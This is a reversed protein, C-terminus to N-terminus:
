KGICFNSFIEGLLDDTTVKGVIEGLADHAMKLEHAVLEGAKFEVLQKKANLCNQLTAAIASLHRRRAIFTAGEAQRYGMCMKLHEKLCSLGEGTKASLYLQGDREGPLLGVTDIKNMILTTKHSFQQLVEQEVKTLEGQSVDVVLLIRDALDQQLLARRIGEKEIEEAQDRIGATDIIHLPMGDLQITEKVLDRTTGAIPTVIATEQGTLANLLSSKGANPQGVIVVSMGEKLLQGQKAKAQLLSLEALIADLKQLVKGDSLFDIEEEPFDIAAEVYLRLQMLATALNLVHESFQGQLSRMASQAAQQTSADILDAIAEAQALDIKNNLFARLSFEGPEALRAGEALVASVVLDLVVPGGHGQLEVVDEGTFSNPSPFYLAVGQDLIEQNANRFTCLTAIRASLDKSLLRKAIFAAQKGSIRIVGIGGKGPATAVAVITDAFSSNANM